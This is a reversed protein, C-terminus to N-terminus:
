QQVTHMSIGYVVVTRSLYILGSLLSVEPEDYQGVSEVSFDDM